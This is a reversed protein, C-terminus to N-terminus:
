SSVTETTAGLKDKLNRIEEQQRNCKELVNNFEDAAEAWFDNDRFQLPAVDDTTGLSRMARRLRTVPGVFRNSFRITDLM